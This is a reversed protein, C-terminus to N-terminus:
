IDTTIDLQVENGRIANNVTAGDVGDNFITRKARDARQVNDMIQAKTIVDCDDIVRRRPRIM